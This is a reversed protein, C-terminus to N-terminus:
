LLILQKILSVMSYLLYDGIIGMTGSTSMGIGIALSDRFYKKVITGAIFSGIINSIFIM